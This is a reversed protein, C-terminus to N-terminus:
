IHHSNFTIQKNLLHTILTSNQKQQSKNQPLMKPVQTIFTLTYICQYDNKFNCM